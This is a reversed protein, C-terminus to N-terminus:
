PGIVHVIGQNIDHLDYHKIGFQKCNERLTDIQKKSIEDVIPLSRDTTPVNHDATAVTREPRRVNRGALRLGEFAQASTVEHVLHLDVYLITQRGEESHVVHDDWIKQFLTRPGAPTSTM